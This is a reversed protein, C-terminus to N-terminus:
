VLLTNCARQLKGDAGRLPTFTNGHIELKLVPHPQTHVEHGATKGGASMSCTPWLAPPVNQPLCNGIVRVPFRVVIKPRAMVLATLRRGRV